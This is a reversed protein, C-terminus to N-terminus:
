PIKYLLQRLELATVLPPSPTRWNIKMDKPPCRSEWAQSPTFFTAIKTRTNANKHEPTWTRTTRDTRTNANKHEPTWTRTTRDKTTHTLKYTLACASEEFKTECNQKLNKNHTNKTVANTDHSGPQCRVATEFYSDVQLDLCDRKRRTNVINNINTTVTALVNGTKVLLKLMPPLTM